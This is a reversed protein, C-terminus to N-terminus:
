SQPFNEIVSSVFISEDIKMEHQQFPGLISMLENYQEMVCRSDVM